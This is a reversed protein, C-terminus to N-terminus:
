QHGAVRDAGLLGVAEAHDVLDVRLVLEEVSRQAHGLLDGAVGGGGDLRRLAGHPEALALRDLLRDRDHHVRVPPRRHMGVPRLADAGEVVPAIRGELIRVESHSRPPQLVIATASSSWCARAASVMIWASGNLASAGGSPSWPSM